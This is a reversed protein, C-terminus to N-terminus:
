STGESAAGGIVGPPAGARPPEPRTAAAGTLIPFCAGWVVALALFSLRRDPAFRVAGLAEGARFALPGGIAGAVASLVPRGQLWRFGYRLTSGLQIWLVVIWPPCLWPVQRWPSAYTLLGLAQLGSEVVLGVVAALALLRFERPRDPVSLLHLGVVGLAVGAGLFPHGHAAGLVCAFWGIQQGVVNAAPHTLGVGGRQVLSRPTRLGSRM